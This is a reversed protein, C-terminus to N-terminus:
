SSRPAYIAGIRRCREPYELVDTSDVFQDVAGIFSAIYRLMDDAITARIADAFREADKRM